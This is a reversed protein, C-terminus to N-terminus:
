RFLSVTGKTDYNQGDKGKATIIYLYTGDPVDKGTQAKGDWAINGKTTTLEYVKNGWRDYIMATIESLNATKVFFLDNSGDGNPTFVNPVELKSPIDVTIVKVVTDVCAGKVNFMTVTYTGPQQYVASTPINTSTTKTSGNGFSWVSTISSTGTTTSSSASQNTFNVTLPAFGTTADPSFDGKLSGNTVEVNSYTTCGNTASTAAIQYSGPQDTRLISTTLTGMAANTPGHWLYTLGNAPAFVATITLNASGCDLAFKRDVTIEPYDRADGVLTSTTATCGNARDKATMTYAGPTYGLYTSVDIAPQQPTPGEWLSAVVPANIFFTNPLIGTKNDTGLNVSYVVCTLSPRDLTIRPIPPRINQYMPIVSTSLCTSGNDIITLTYADIVTASPVSAGAPTTTITIVSNFITPTTSNNRKWNYSVNGTTSAGVLTVSPIYCSLTRTIASASIDPTYTNQVISLPVRTECNNFIDKILVIYTGPTNVTYASSSGPIYNTGTYSPPLLTYTISGGPPTTNGGVINVDIVSRTSCGLTFTNSTFNSTIATFIPFGGNSIVEVTKTTVCGNVINTLVFTSTGIPPNFISVQGLSSVGPVGTPSYWTHMMNITPNIATGTATAVVGPGCLINQQTPTVSSTPPLNNLFIPISHAVTCLSQPHTVICTYSAPNTVTITQASSTFSPSSWFYSLPGDTYTPNAHLVISTYTCTISPSGTVNVITFNAPGVLLSVSQTIPGWCGNAGPSVTVVYDTTVTPTAIVSTGISTSLGNSPTWVYNFPGGCGNNLIANLTASGPPCIVTNSAAINLTPMVLIGPVTFTGTQTWATFSSGETERARFQYTQGPCFSALSISQQPYDQVNATKTLSASIYFPGVGTFPASLCVIEVQMSYTCAPYPTNSTWNLLLNSSNIAQATLVPMALPSCAKSSFSMQMFFGIILIAFLAPSRRQSINSRLNNLATSHQNTM